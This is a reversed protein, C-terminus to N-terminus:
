ATSELTNRIGIIKGNIWKSTKEMEKLIQAAREKDVSKESVLTIMASLDTAYAQFSDLLAQYHSKSVAEVLKFIYQFKINEKYDKFHLIVSRETERKMRIVGSQFALLEEENQNQIPKKLIKKAFKIISFFGLRIFAETKIKATYNVTAAAPPLILGAVDKIADMDPLQIKTHDMQLINIGFNGLAINYEAVADYVMSDFPNTITDLYEKIRAEMDKMFGIIQPNITETMHADLGQKFEQFALNIVSLFGSTTLNDEYKHYSTKYDRIFEIIETLLEGSRSDFFRDIDAKCENKIKQVAGELSRKVMSLIQNMRNQHHTINDIIEKASQADRDLINQNIMVWNDVGTSIIGLRELHNKLLLSYREESLKRYFFSEFRETEKDSFSTFEREKKWQALRQNDKQPLHIKEAKFLNFLASISFVDPSKKILSLDEKIKKILSNLDDISEHENFDYNIIFLINDIIGMRKIMSLFKIDAERIGTRSSIVYIILHTLILYDQIMALHIPNPSDSGQCDAIEIYGTIDQSDIELQVDKLYVAMSGESVFDRHKEFRMEVYQTASPEAFIIDKVKEYGNLYSSLLLSNANLSDNVILQEGNLSSFAKHLDMRDPNRRIDFGDSERRDLIPFLVLAQEMEANVESWSKFYLKANLHKGSRVRTVISTVVGAGRKLYDGKYLSNIFTSKGSKIPGVVAVRVIEESLQHHINKCTNQWDLLSHDSTDALSKADNFLKLLDQNILLLNDKISNYKDM